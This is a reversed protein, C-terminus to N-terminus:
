RNQKAKRYARVEQVIEGMSMSRSKSRKALSSLRPGEVKKIVVTDDDTFLIVKDTPKFLRRPLRITGDKSVQIMEM